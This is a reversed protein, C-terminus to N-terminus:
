GSGQQLQALIDLLRAELGSSEAAAECAYTALADAALLRFAAERNRGPRALAEALSTRAAGCLADVPDGSLSESELWPQFSEPAPPTRGALWARPGSM